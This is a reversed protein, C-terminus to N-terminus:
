VFRAKGVFLFPVLGHVSKQEYNCQQAGGRHESLFAARGFDSEIKRETGTRPSQALDVRLVTQTGFLLRGGLGDEGNSGARARFDRAVVDDQSM